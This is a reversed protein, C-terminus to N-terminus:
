HECPLPCTIKGVDHRSSPQIPLFSLVSFSFTIQKRLSPCTIFTSPPFVPDTSPFHQNFVSLPSHRGSQLLSNISKEHCLPLFLQCSSSPDATEGKKPNMNIKSTKLKPMKKMGAGSKVWRFKKLQILASCFVFYLM